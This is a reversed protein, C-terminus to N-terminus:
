CQDPKHFFSAAIRKKHFRRPVAAPKSSNQQKLRSSRLSHRHWVVVADRWKFCVFFPRFVNNHTKEIFCTERSSNVLVKPPEEVTGRRNGKRIMRFTAQKDNKHAHMPVGFWRMSEPAAFPVPERCHWHASFQLFAEGSPVVVCSAVLKEYKQACVVLRDRARTHKQRVSEVCFWSPVM